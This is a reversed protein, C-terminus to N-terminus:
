TAPDPKLRWTVLPWLLLLGLAAVVIYGQMQYFRDPQSLLEVAGGLLGTCAIVLFWGLMNFRALQRVGFVFVGLVIASAAFQQIFDPPSGWGSVMSAAVAVFLLLRLWRVRLEAALFSAALAVLGTVFLARLIGGGIVSAAPFTADFSDGFRSPLSRHLTPWFTMAAEIVRRLGILLASGGLGIWFADRYYDGPMGLWSPIQEQGFARAAFNWALGFLLVIGGLVLGALIAVGVITTALFLRFPMATSYQSLLTPIGKGLLFNAAYAILGVFGWLVLKRWPVNVPRNRLRKFFFVIVAVLLALGLVIQGISFLTQPLSQEEQKRTFEEPIKIYTRYNAPQDGLIQLEIRAYAHDTSDPAGPKQPDLPATQQWTLTHDTRNPKKDSDSDVLKWQNMDIQKQERLFKEAIAMAEEKTLTPGKAAEALTHRFAHLSGDPKLTIAFEEPQSDQFYRVRWLAGPVRQDYIKNIEAITMRRRLFENTVPNTTDVMQTARRYNNPFLGHQRLVTDARKNAADADVSIRLYDGIHPQKLKWAALGGLIVCLVLFGLATAGLATYRSRAVPAEQYPTRKAFEIEPAPEARNLLDEVAEFRGRLLYSVGSFVLPAVAALGVVIGSVKFYPNDSRILLLGVLSADVTYHWILTAIIGWRLMVVGALIGILGVEIGRIYGPEQPYNSHLFGWFFAPLIVALIRSGTIKGLFPIAFLRFLFEESTAAMVGIAVGAIWPFSTNVVDSYNLDQPAWVGFHSGIMYFAVIFGIHAAAMALGVVSSSFFEKSRLGRLTFAKYLRLKGPQAGRYLPEGGPLVLTVMLGAAIGGFVIRALAILIFASYADHTDYGARYSQWQNLEMLSALLAVVGGIKLAPIWTTKGQRTLSIGAWLAGGLLFGYPILAIEGYFTNTSRLHEYGRTWAEPVKLFEQSDSIKNGDLGVQLRYPAEKAKFGKREWTFSWDVRNPRTQSNAEEPLFQWNSLDTGLKDQAYLEVVGLAEEKPLSKEARAEEIKHSYAVIQGAPNVHVRFEEVQLPKFFRIEWYWINLQSSMLRNAQQLGLERELYTKAQEDVGFSITSQYGDINEGLGEVFKKARSQADARSIKFDVSAEPFAQFFYRHAFLVGVLGFLIWLILARKDALTLRDESL